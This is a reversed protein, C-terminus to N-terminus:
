NLSHQFPKFHIHLLTGMADLAQRVQYFLTQTDLYDQPRLWQYKLTRWLIEVINLHPSYSPLYFVFLGREQWFPKREKVAQALAVQLAAKVAEENGKAAVQGALETVAPM